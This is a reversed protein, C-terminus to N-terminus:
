LRKRKELDSRYILYDPTKLGSSDLLPDFINLAEVESCSYFIDDLINYLSLVKIINMEKNKENYEEHYLLIKGDKYNAKVTNYIKIFRGLFIEKEKLKFIVDHFRTGRKEYEKIEIFADESIKIKSVTYILKEKNRDYDMSIMM